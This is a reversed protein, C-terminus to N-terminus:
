PAAPWNVREWVTLTGDLKYFVVVVPLKQEDIAKRIIDSEKKLDDVTYLANQHTRREWCADKEKECPGEFSERIKRVLAALNRSDPTEDKIAEEIAGCKQHALIVLLRTYRHELAYEISAIGLRDTVNGASRVLFIEGLDQKFVLEPPVRSDSCSLITVPPSQGNALGGRLRILRDFTISNGQFKQNGLVLKTWEAPAPQSPTAPPQATACGFFVLLVMFRLVSRM